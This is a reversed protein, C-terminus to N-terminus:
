TSESLDRRQGTRKRSFHTGQLRQDGVARHRTGIRNWADEADHLVAHVAARVRGPTLGQGTDSVELRVGTELAITRM